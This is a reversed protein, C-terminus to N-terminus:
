CPPLVQVDNPISAMSTKSSPPNPHGHNQWSVGALNHPPQHISSTVLTNFKRTNAHRTGVATTAHGLALVALVAGIVFPATMLARRAHHDLIPPAHNSAHSPLDSDMHLIAKTEDVNM